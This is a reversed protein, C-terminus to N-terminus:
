DTYHGFGAAEGFGATTNPLSMARARADLPRVRPRPSRWRRNSCGRKCRGGDTGAVVGEGCRAAGGRAKLEGIAARGVAWLAAKAGLARVGRGLLEISLM